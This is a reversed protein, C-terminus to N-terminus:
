SKNNGVIQKVPVFSFNSVQNIYLDLANNMKMQSVHQNIRRAADAKQPTQHLIKPDKFLVSSM